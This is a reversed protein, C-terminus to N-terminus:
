QMRDSGIHARFSERAESTYVKLHAEPLRTVKFGRRQAEDTLHDATLETPIILEGAYEQKQSYAADLLRAAEAVPMQKADTSVFGMDLMFCSAADMLAFLNFDGDQDTTVPADNIRFLIWTQNVQYQNPDLM